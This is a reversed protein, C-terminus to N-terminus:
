LRMRECVKSRRPFANSVKYLVPTTAVKNFMIKRGVLEAVSIMESEFQDKDM